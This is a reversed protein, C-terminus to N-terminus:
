IKEWTIDRVPVEVLMEIDNNFGRDVRGSMTLSWPGSKGSLKPKVKVSGIRGLGNQFGWVYFSPLGTTLTATLLDHYKRWAMFVTPYQDWKTTRCKIEAFAKPEKLRFCVADILDFSSKYRKVECQWKYSLYDKVRDENIIDSDTELKM